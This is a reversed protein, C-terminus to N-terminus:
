PLINSWQSAVFKNTPDFVGLLIRGSFPPNTPNAFLQQFALTAGAAPQAANVSSVFGDAGGNFTDQLSVFSSDLLSSLRFDKIMKSCM